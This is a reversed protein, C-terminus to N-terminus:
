GDGNKKGNRRQAYGKVWYSGKDIGLLALLIYLLMDTTTEGSTGNQAHRELDKSVNVLTVEIRDLQREIATTRAALIAISQSNQAPLDQTQFLALFLLLTM